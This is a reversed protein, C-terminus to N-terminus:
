LLCLKIQPETNEMVGPSIAVFPNMKLVDLPAKTLLFFTELTFPSQCTSIVQLDVVLM